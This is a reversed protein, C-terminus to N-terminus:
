YYKRVFIVFLIFAMLFHVICNSIAAAMTGIQPILLIDLIIQLIIGIFSVSMNYRVEGMAALINASTYRLGSNMFSSLLLMRMLGVVNVYEEGYIIMIIPKAFIGISLAVVGVITATIIFVKKYNKKVWEKNDENKTFHPAVFIGIATAFIAINGPFVYAVRYEALQTPSNLLLGLLFTDNLMFIAWLGNTIMYQLSYRDVVRRKKKPLKEVRDKILLKRKIFTYGLTGAIFNIIVQSFFVGGIGGFFAGIVRGLILASSIFFSACAYLKNKFFARFTFLDDNVLDQFPLLIALVPLWIKAEKYNGPFIPMQSLICLVMLIFFNRIVSQNIIYNFYQKKERKNEVLVLYRLIAYSLGFGAFILAYSYINEIYSVLGYEEKSLLRVVVISGFFAVFKTMFTGMTIHLAGTSYLKYIREKVVKKM